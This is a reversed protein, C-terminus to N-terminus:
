WVKGWRDERRSEGTRSEMSGKEKKDKESDMAHRYIGCLCCHSEDFIYTQSSMLSLSRALSFSVYFSLFFLRRDTLRNVNRDGSAGSNCYCYQSNPELHHFPFSLLTSTCSCPLGWASGLVVHLM